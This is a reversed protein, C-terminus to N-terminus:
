RAVNVNEVCHLAKFCGGAGTVCLNQVICAFFGLARWPVIKVFKYAQCSPGRLMKGKEMAGPACYRVTNGPGIVSRVCMSMPHIAGLHLSGGCGCRRLGMVFLGDMDRAVALGGMPIKLDKM